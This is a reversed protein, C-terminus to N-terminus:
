TVNKKIAGKFDVNVLRGGSKLYVGDGFSTLGGGKKLYLGEGDTIIGCVCGGKKM